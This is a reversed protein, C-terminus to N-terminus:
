APYDMSGDCRSGLTSTFCRATSAPAPASATATAAEPAPTTRTATATATAPASTKTGTNFTGNADAYWHGSIPDFVDNCEDGNGLTALLWIHVFDSVPCRRARRGKCCLVCTSGGGATGEDRVPRAADVPTSRGPRETLDPDPYWRACGLECSHVWRFARSLPLMPTTIGPSSGRGGPKKSVDSAPFSFPATTERPAREKAM